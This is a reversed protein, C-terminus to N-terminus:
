HYARKGGMEPDEKGQLEDIELHTLYKQDSLRCVEVWVRKGVLNVEKWAVVSTSDRVYGAVGCVAVRM